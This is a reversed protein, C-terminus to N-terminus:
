FEIQNHPLTHLVGNAYVFRKRANDNSALLQESLGLSKCLELTQPKNTLVM